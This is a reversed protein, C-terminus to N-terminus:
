LQPFVRPWVPQPPPTAYVRRGARQLSAQELAEILRHQVFPRQLAPAAAHAAPLAADEAPVLWVLPVLRAALRDAISAADALQSNLLAGALPRRMREILRMAEDASVAPGVVRYGAEGLLRQLDFAALPDAEVLLVCGRPPDDAARQLAIVRPPPTTDSWSQPSPVFTRSRTEAFPSLPGQPLTRLSAASGIPM